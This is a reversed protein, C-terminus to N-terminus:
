IRLSLGQGHRYPRNPEVTTELEQPLGPQRYPQHPTPPRHQQFQGAFQQQWNGTQSHGSDVSVQLSEIHLGQQELADRLRPLNRELVGQVQSNQAHIEARVRDHHVSLDLKVEGLEAPHLRLSAHGSKGNRSGQIHGAVQEYIAKEEVVRGSPLSITATPPRASPTVPQPAQRHLNFGAQLHSPEIRPPDNAQDGPDRGQNQLLDGFPNNSGDAAPQLQQVGSLWTESRPPTAPVTSAEKRQPNSEALKGLLKGFRPDGSEVAGTQTPIVPEITQSVPQLAKVPDLPPGNATQQLKGPQPQEPFAQAPTTTPLPKDLPLGLQKFGTTEEAKVIQASEPTIGPKETTPLQPEAVQGSPVAVNPVGGVPQLGQLLGQQPLRRIALQMEEPLQAILDQPLQPMAQGGQGRGALLALLQGDDLMRTLDEKQLQGTLTGLLLEFGTGPQPAAAATEMGATTPLAANINLLPIAEM